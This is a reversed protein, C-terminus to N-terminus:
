NLQEETILHLNKLNENRELETKRKNMPSFPDKEQCAQKIIEILEFKSFKMMQLTWKKNYESDM